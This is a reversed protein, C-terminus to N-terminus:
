MSLLMETHEVAACDHASVTGPVLMKLVLWLYCWFESPSELVALVVHM